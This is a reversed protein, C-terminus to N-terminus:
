RRACSSAQRLPSRWLLAPPAMFADTRPSPSASISASARVSAAMFHGALRQKGLLRQQTAFMTRHLQRNPFRAGTAGKCCRQRIPLAAASLKRLACRIAPTYRYVGQAAHERRIPHSTEVGAM